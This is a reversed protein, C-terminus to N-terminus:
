GNEETREYEKIFELIDSKNNTAQILEYFDEQSLLQVFESLAQLHSNSDSASLVFLYKVPDNSEHGSIVPTSLRTVGMAPKKAGAESSAHPLAVNKTIVIYPGTEKYIEIIKDVYSDTIADDKLLPEASKRIADEFNEAAVDFQIYSEKIIKSLM